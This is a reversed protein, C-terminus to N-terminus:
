DRTARAGVGPFSICKGLLCIGPCTAPDCKRTLNREGHKNNTIVIGVLVGILFVGVSLAITEGSLLAQPVLTAEIDTNM